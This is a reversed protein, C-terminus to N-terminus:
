TNNLIDDVTENFGIDRYYCKAGIFHRLAHEVGPMETLQYTDTKVSIKGRGLVYRNGKNHCTRWFTNTNYRSLLRGLKLCHHLHENHENPDVYISVTSRLHCEIVINIDIREGKTPNTIECQDYFLNTYLAGEVYKRKKRNWGKM